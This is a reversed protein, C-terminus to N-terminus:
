GSYGKGSMYRTPLADGPSSGHSQEASVADALHDSLLEGRPEHGPDGIRDAGGKGRTRVHDHSPISSGGAGREGADDARRQREGSVLHRLDSDQGRGRDLVINGAEPAVEPDDDGGGVVRGLEVPQLA